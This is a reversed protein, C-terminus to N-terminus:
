SFVPFLPVVEDILELGGSILLGWIDKPVIRLYDAFLLNALDQCDEPSISLNITHAYKLQEDM